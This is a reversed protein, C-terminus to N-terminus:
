PGGRWPRTGTLQCRRAGGEVPARARGSLHGGHRVGVSLAWSEGKPTQRDTVTLRGLMPLLHGLTAEQCVGALRTFLGRLRLLSILSLVPCHPSPHTLALLLVPWLSSCDGAHCKGNWLYTGLQAATEERTVEGVAGNGSFQRRRRTTCPPSCVLARLYGATRGGALFQLLCSKFARWSRFPKKRTVAGQPPYEHIRRTAPVTSPALSVSSVPVHAKGVGCSLSSRLTRACRVLKRASHVSM